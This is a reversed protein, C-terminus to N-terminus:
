SHALVMNFDFRGTSSQQIEVFVNGCAYENSRHM